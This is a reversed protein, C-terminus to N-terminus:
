PLMESVAKLSLNSIHSVFREFTNNLFFFFVGFEFSGVFRSLLHLIIM